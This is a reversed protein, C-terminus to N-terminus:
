REATMPTIWGDRSSSGPRWRETPNNPFCLYILDVAGDPLDPTFGNEATCPMYCLETWRERVKDYEGARGAMANTDVYAPYVPDCVAM